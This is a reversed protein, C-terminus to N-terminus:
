LVIITSLSLLLATDKRASCRAARRFTDIFPNAERLNVFAGEVVFFKCLGTELQTDQTRTFSPSTNVGLNM